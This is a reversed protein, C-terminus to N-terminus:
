VFFNFKLFVPVIFADFIAVYAASFESAKKCERPYEWM